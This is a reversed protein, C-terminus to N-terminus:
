TYSWLTLSSGVSAGQVSGRGAHEGCKCHAGAMTSIAIGAIVELVQAQTYGAAVFNGLEADVTRGKTEILARALAALAALKRDSPADGRRIAAVDHAGVGAKLAITSHFAVTWRCNLAVANALLLTQKEAEFSGGHFSGLSSVFANILVPSAAMTAAANPIFGFNQQLGQLAQKSQEPATDVLHIRFTGHRDGTRTPGSLFSRNSAVALDLEYNKVSTLIAM